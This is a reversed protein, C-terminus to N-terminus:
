VPADRDGRRRGDKKRGVARRRKTQARRKKSESKQPARTKQRKPGAAGCSKKHLAWKDSIPLRERGGGKKGIGKKKGKKEKRAATDAGQRWQGATNDDKKDSVFLCSCRCIAKNGRMVIRVGRGLGLDACTTRASMPCIIYLPFFLAVRM